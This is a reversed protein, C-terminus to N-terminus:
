QFFFSGNYPNDHGISLYRLGSAVATIVFPLFEFAFAEETGKSISEVQDFVM